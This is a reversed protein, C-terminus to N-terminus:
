RHTSGSSTASQEGRDQRPPERMATEVANIRTRPAAPGTAARSATFQTGSIFAADASREARSRRIRPEPQQQHRRLRGQTRTGRTTPARPSSRDAFDRHGVGFGFDFNTSGRHSHRVGCERQGLFRVLRLRPRRGEVVPHRLRPHAAGLGFGHVLLRQPTSMGETYINHHGTSTGPSGRATATARHRPSSGNQASTSRLHRLVLSECVRRGRSGGGRRDRHGVVTLGLGLWRRRMGDEGHRDGRPCGGVPTGGIANLHSDEVAKRGFTLRHLFRLFTFSPGRTGFRCQVLPM